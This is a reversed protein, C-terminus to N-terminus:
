RFRAYVRKGSFLESLVKETRGSMAPLRMVDVHSFDRKTGQRGEQFHQKAQQKKARYRIQYAKAQEKHERYYNRQYAARDELTTANCKKCIKSRRDMKGGCKPCTRRPRKSLREKNEQYYKRNDERKEETTM